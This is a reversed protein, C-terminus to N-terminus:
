AVGMLARVRAAVAELEHPPIGAGPEFPAGFPKALGKRYLAQHLRDLDRTPRVFGREVLRACLYELGQQPRATGRQNPPQAEARAVVRERLARLLRFSAREPLPVVYVPRGLATAEALM